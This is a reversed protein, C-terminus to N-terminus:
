NGGWGLYEEVDVMKFPKFDNVLFINKIIMKFVEFNHKALWDGGLEFHEQFLASRALVVESSRNDLRTLEGTLTIKSCTPAQPDRKISSRCLNVAYESVTFSSIPNHLANPGTPDRNSTTLYFFPTGTSADSYSVVNGFPAGTASDLTSLVGWSGRKVLWRAFAPGNDESPRSEICSCCILVLIIVSFSKM